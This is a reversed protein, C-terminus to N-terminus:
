DANMIKDYEAMLRKIEKFYKEEIIYNRKKLEELKKNNEKATGAVFLRCVGNRTNFYKNGKDYFRMTCIKTPYKANTCANESLEDKTADYFGSIDNINLRIYTPDEQIWCDDKESYHQHVMEYAAIEITTDMKFWTNVKFNHELNIM